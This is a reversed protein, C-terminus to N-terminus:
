QRKRGLRRRACIAALGTGLLLLTTPEPNVIATGELEVRLATPNRSGNTPWNAVVFDLTNLGNEFGNTIAFAALGRVFQDPETSFGLSLGNLLIDVGANDTAWGGTLVATAPHFGTLSFTTRYIYTGVLSTDVNGGLPEIWKSTSTNPFYPPIPFGDTVMAYANCNGPACTPGALLSYHLDIQGEAIGAGTNFLTTIPNATVVRPMSLLIALAFIARLPKENMAAKM